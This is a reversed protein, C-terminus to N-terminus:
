RRRGRWLLAGLGVGLLSWTSPEPVAPLPSFSLDDIVHMLADVGGPVTGERGPYNGFSRFEFQLLATQGAYASVDVAYYHFLPVDPDGSPRDELFHVPALSGGVYVHLDNGHYLFRLSQADAPIDGTQALFFSPAAIGSQPWIGLSFNGVVPAHAPNAPQWTNVYDHDLLSAWNEFPQTSNYGVVPMTWSPTVWEVPASTFPPGPIPDSIFDPFNQTEFGLNQFQAGQAGIRLLLVSVLLATKM